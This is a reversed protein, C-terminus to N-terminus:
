MGPVLEDALRRFFGRQERGSMLERLKRPPSSAKEEAEAKSRLRVREILEMDCRKFWLDEESKRRPQTEYEM